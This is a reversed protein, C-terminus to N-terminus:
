DNFFLKIYKKAYLVNLAVTLNYNEIKKWNDKESPCNIGEWNYKYIFIKIKTIRESNKGIEEHDLLVTISYQFCKNYKKNIPIITAKKNKIWEPSDIYSGGGKFSIKYCKYHLLNVCDFIFDSGKVSTELGAQYRPLLSQFLKEKVEELKDNIMIEIFDSISHM